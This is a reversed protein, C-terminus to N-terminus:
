DFFGGMSAFGSKLVKTKGAFDLTTEGGNTLEETLKRM